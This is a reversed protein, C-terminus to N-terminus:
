PKDTFWHQVSWALQFYPWLHRIVDETQKVANHHLFVFLCSKGCRQWGQGSCHQGGGLSEAMIRSNGPDKTRITFATRLRIPPAAESEYKAAVGLIGQGKGPSSLLIQYYTAIQADRGCPALPPPPPLAELETILGGGWPEPKIERERRFGLCWMMDHTAIPEADYPRHEGKEQVCRFTLSFRATLKCNKKKKVINADAMLSAKRFKIASNCKQKVKWRSLRFM